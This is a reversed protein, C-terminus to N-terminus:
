SWISTPTASARSRSPNASRRRANSPLSRHFKADEKDGLGTDVLVNKGHARDVPLDLQPSHPKHEDAPCCREWLTKPVVGFMAGGDLDFDAMGHCSPHPISGTEYCWRNATPGTCRACHAAFRAWPRRRKSPRLSPPDCKSPLSGSGASRGLGRGNQLTARNACIRCGHWRSRNWRRASGDYIPIPCPTEEAHDTVGVLGRAGRELQRQYRQSAELIERQPFGQEIARIMGGMEDLRRFYDQAGEELRNTLSEVFFSGGLPDVTNM